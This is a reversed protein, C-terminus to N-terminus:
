HQAPCLCLIRLSFVSSHFPFLEKSKKFIFQGILNKGEPHLATLILFVAAEKIAKIILSFLQNGMIFIGPALPSEYPHKGGQGHGIRGDKGPLLPCFKQAQGTLPCIEDHIM